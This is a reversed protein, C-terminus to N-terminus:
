RATFNCTGGDSPNSTGPGFDTFGDTITQVWTVNLRSVHQGLAVQGVPAYMYVTPYGENIPDPMTQTFFIWPRINLGDLDLAVIAADLYDRVQQGTTAYWSWVLSVSQGKLLSGLTPQVGFLDCAAVVNVQSLQMAQASLPLSAAAAWLRLTGGGVSAILSGDPSPRVDRVGPHRLRALPDGGALSWILVANQEPSLGIGAAAVIGARTNLGWGNVRQFEAPRNLPSLAEGSRADWVAIATDGAAPQSFIRRGDGTYAASDLLSVSASAAKEALIRDTARLGLDIIEGGGAGDSVLLHRGDPSFAIDDPTISPDLTFTQRTEVTVIQIVNQRTLLAIQTGNPSAAIRRADAIFRETMAASATNWAVLSGPILTYIQQGDPSFAFDTLPQDLRIRLPPRLWDTVSYLDIDTADSVALLSAGPSWLLRDARRSLMMYLSVDAANVPTIRERIPLIFPPQASLPSALMCLLVILSLLRLM